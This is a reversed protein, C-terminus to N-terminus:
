TFMQLPSNEYDDNFQKILQDVQPQEDLRYWNRLMRLSKYINMNFLEQRSIDNVIDEIRDEENGVEPICEFFKTREVQYSTDKELWNFLKNGEVIVLQKIIVLVIGRDNIEAKVIYKESNRIIMFFFINWCDNYDTLVTMSNISHEKDILFLEGMAQGEKLNEERKKTEIWVCNMKNLGISIETDSTITVNTERLNQQHTVQTHIDKVHYNRSLKLVNKFWTIVNTM